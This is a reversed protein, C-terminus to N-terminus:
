HRKKHTNRKKAKSTQKAKTEAAVAEKNAAAEGAAVAAKAEENSAPAVHFCVYVAASGSWVEKGAKCEKRRADEVNCVASNCRCYIFVFWCDLWSGNRVCLGELNRRRVAVYWIGSCVFDVHYQHYSYIGPQHFPKGHVYLHM